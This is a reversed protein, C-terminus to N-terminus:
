IIHFDASHRGASSIDLVNASQALGAPLGIAARPTNSRV